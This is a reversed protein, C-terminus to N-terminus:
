EWSKFDALLARGWSTFGALLGLDHEGGRPLIRWFTSAGVVYFGGFTGFLARGWSTFDTLLGSFHEGGPRLILWFDWFTSATM